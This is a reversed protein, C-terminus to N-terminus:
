RLISKLIKRENSNKQHVLIYFIFIFFECFVSLSSLLFRQSSAAGFDVKNVPFSDDQIRLFGLSEVSGMMSLDYSFQFCSIWIIHKRLLTWGLLLPYVHSLVSKKKKKETIASWSSRSRYKVTIRGKHCLSCIVVSSHTCECTVGFNVM